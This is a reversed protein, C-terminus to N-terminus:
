SNFSYRKLNDFKMISGQIDSLSENTWRLNYRTKSETKFLKNSCIELYDDPCSVGLFQCMNLIVAKPNEILDKGHVELYDLNYNSKMQEIAQFMTFYEDVCYKLKDVDVVLTENDRKVTTAKKTAGSMYLVKTAINDYPNRIVHIVKISINSLMSKLKFFLQEWKSPDDVFMLTTQGGNKDGIVQIPPMFTGQYLGDISLTYGKVLAREKKTRLGLTSSHFSNKWLANFLSLKDTYRPKIRSMDEDLKLFLRGEHALVIHPHADLLSGVISHGSRQHGLFFVFTKVQKIDSSSLKIFQNLSSDDNLDNKYRQTTTGNQLSYLLLVTVFVGATLLTLNKKM